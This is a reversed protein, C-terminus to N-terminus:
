RTCSLEISAGAIDAGIPPHQKMVKIELAEIPPFTKFLREVIGGCLHELLRSPTAMEAKVVAYIDAYSLTEALEDSFIARDLATKIKLDVVFTNGVKREQESVGHHAYFRMGHLAIHGTLIRM